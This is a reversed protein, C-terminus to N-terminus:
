ALMFVLVICATKIPLTREEIMRATLLNNEDIYVSIFIYNEEINKSEHHM